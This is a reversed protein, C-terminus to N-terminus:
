LVTHLRNGGSIFIRRFVGIGSLGANHNAGTNSTINMNSGGKGRKEREIYSKM